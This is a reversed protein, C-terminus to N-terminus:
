KKEFEHGCKPCKIKEPKSERLMAIVDDLDIERLVNVVFWTRISDVTLLKICWKAMMKKAKDM